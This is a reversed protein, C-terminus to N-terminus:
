AQEFVLQVTGDSSREQILTLGLQSARARVENVSRDQVIRGTERDVDALFAGTQDESGKDIRGLFVSSVRQFTFTEPGISGTIRGEFETVKEAGLQSLAARLLSQDTIRTPRCRECLDTSQAERIAAIAALGLPILLVELSV